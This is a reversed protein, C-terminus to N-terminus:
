QLEWDRGRGADGLGGFQKESDRGDRLEVGSCKGDSDGGATYSISKSCLLGRSILM